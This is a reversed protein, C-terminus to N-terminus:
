KTSTARDVKHKKKTTRKKSTKKGSIKKKVVKVKTTGDQEMDLKKAAARSLDIVRGDVYPGRDNIRVEVTKDKELNTVEVKTGLPLSPHAATMKNTNFSEGSATEKGHFGPGYWSAEGIEKYVPKSVTREREGRMQKFQESSQVLLTCIALVLSGIRAARLFGSPCQHRIMAASAAISKWNLNKYCALWQLKKGQFSDICNRITM